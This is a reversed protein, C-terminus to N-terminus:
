RIGCLGTAEVNGIATKAETAGVGIALASRWAPPLVRWLAVQAGLSAIFYADVSSVSPARGLLANNEHTMRWGDAAASRTSAWDCALAASAGGMAAIDAHACSCLALFILRM